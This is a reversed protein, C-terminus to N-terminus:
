KFVGWIKLNTGAEFTKYSYITIGTIHEDKFLTGYGDNGLSLASKVAGVSRVKTGNFSGSEHETFKMVISDDVTYMEIEYETTQESKKPLPTPYFKGLANWKVDGTWVSVPMYNTDETYALTSLLVRIKQMPTDIWTQELTQVSEEVTVDALLEWTESAGSEVDVAEWATPKGADDVATIRVTQGVTAGTVGLSLDTGGGSSEPVKWTGDGALFKGEDGAAPTPVLGSMGDTEATAGSLTPLYESPVPHYKETYKTTSTFTVTTGMTKSISDDFVVTWGKTGYDGDFAYVLFPYDPYLNDPKIAEPIDTVLSSNGYCVCQYNAGYSGGELKLGRRTAFTGVGSIAVNMEGGSWLNDASDAEWWGVYFFSAIVNYVKEKRYLDLNARAQMQQEETPTDATYHVAADEMDNELDSLKTPIKAKLTGWTLIEAEEYAYGDPKPRPIVPITIACKTYSSDERSIYAYLIIDAHKQLLINPITVYSGDDTRIVEVPISVRSFRTSFHVEDVRGHTEDVTVKVNTDWQYLSTRGDALEFM